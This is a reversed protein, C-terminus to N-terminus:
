AKLQYAEDSRVEPLDPVHDPLFISDPNLGFENFNPRGKTTITRVLSMHTANANFVSFFPQGTKRKQSRYTASGGSEDWLSKHDETTNYDTKSNNTCFYGAERMYEPYFINKPTDYRERHIDMGYTTAYCGTILTSRAPSCHPANSSANTFRISKSALRDIEPTKADKGGYCGFQYPSTDELVLWLINPKEQEETPASFSLLPLNLIVIVLIMQKIM